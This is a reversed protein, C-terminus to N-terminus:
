NKNLRTKRHAYLSAMVVYLLFFPALFPMKIVAILLAVFVLALFALQFINM